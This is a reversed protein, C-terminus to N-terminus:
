YSIMMRKGFSYYLRLVFLDDILNKYKGVVDKGVFEGLKVKEMGM